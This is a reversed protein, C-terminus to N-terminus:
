PRVGPRSRNPLRIFGGLYYTVLRRDIFGTRQASGHRPRTPRRGHRSRRADVPGAAPASTTGACPTNHEALPDRQLDLPCLRLQPADPFL